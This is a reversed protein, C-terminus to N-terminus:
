MLLFWKRKVKKEQTETQDDDDDIWIENPIGHM